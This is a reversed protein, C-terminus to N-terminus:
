LDKLGEICKKLDTEIEDKYYNFNVRGYVDLADLIIGLQRGNIECEFTKNEDFKTIGDPRYGCGMKVMMEHLTNDCVRDFSLKYSPIYAVAVGIEDKAMKVVESMKM